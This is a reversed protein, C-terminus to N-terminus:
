ADGKALKIAARADNDLCGDEGVLSEWAEESEPKAALKDRWYVAAELADLLKDIIAELEGIYEAVENDM